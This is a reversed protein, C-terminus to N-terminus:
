PIKSHFIRLVEMPLYPKQLFGIHETTIVEALIEPNQSATTYVVPIKRAKHIRRVAEIGTMDGDLYIDMFIIDPNLELAASVADAGSAVVGVVEHGLAELEMHLALAAISEDEVILIRQKAM